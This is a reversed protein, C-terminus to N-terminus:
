AAALLAKQVYGPTLLVYCPVLLAYRGKRATYTSDAKARSSYGLHQRLHSKQKKDKGCHPCVYQAVM